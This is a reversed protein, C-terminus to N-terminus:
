LERLSTQANKCVERLLFAAVEALKWEQKSEKEPSSKTLGTKKIKRWYFIHFLEHAIVM